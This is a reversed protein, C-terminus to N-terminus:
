YANVIGTYRSTSAAGTSVIRNSLSSVLRPVMSVSIVAGTVSSSTTNPLNVAASTKATTINTRTSTATAYRRMRPGRSAPVTSALKRPRDSSVPSNSAMPMNHEASVRMWIAEAMM